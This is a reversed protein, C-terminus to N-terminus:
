AGSRDPSPSPKKDVHCICGMPIPPHNYSFGKEHDKIPDGCGCTAPDIERGCGECIEHGEELRKKRQSAVVHSFIAKTITEEPLSECWKIFGAVTMDVGIVVDDQRVGDRYCERRVGFVGDTWLYEEGNVLIPHGELLIGLIIKAPHKKKVEVDPM